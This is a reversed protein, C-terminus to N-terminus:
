IMIDIEEENESDERVGDDYVLAVSTPLPKEEVARESQHVITQNDIVAFDMQEDSFLVLVEEEEGDNDDENDSPLLMDELLRRKHLAARRKPRSIAISELDQAVSVSSVVVDDDADDHSGRKRRVTKSKRTGRSKKAATRKSLSAMSIPGEKHKTAHPRNCMTTGAEQSEDDVDLDETLEARSKTRKPQRSKRSRPQRRAPHTSEAYVDDEVLQKQIAPRTRPGKRKPEDRAIYDSIDVVAGGHQERICAEVYSLLRVLQERALCSLDIEVEDNQQGANESSLITLIGPLRDAHLQNTIKDLLTEEIERKHMYLYQNPQVALSSHNGRGFSSESDSESEDSSYSLRRRNSLNAVTTPIVDEDDESDSEDDSSDSSESSSSSSSSSRRRKLNSVPVVESTDLQKDQPAEVDEVTKETLVELPEPVAENILLPEGPTGMPHLQPSEHPSSDVSSTPASTDDTVFTLEDYFPSPAAGDFNLEDQGFLDEFQVSQAYMQADFGDLNPENETPWPQLWSAMSERMLLEQVEGTLDEVPWPNGTSLLENLQEETMATESSQAKHSPYTTAFSDDNTFVPQHAITVGGM